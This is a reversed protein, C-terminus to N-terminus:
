EKLCCGVDIRTLFKPSGKYFHGVQKLVRSAFRKAKNIFKTDRSDAMRSTGHPHPTKWEVISYQYSNGLYYMRIQPFSVEFDKMFKQFVIAPYRNQNQFVKKIYVAVDERTSLEWPRGVDGSDTGHVPKGFTEKWNKAKNWVSTVAKENSKNWQQRKLCITPAVPIGNKEFYKYYACKDYVMHQYKIPPFMKNGGSDIIRQFKGNPVKSYSLEPPAPRVLKDYFHWFVFDSTRIIATTLENAPVILFKFKPDKKLYYKICYAVAHDIRVFERPENKSGDENVVMSKPVDKLWPRSNTIKFTDNYTNIYDKGTPGVIFALRM